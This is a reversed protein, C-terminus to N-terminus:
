RMLTVDGSKRIVRGDAINVVFTWTYVGLPVKEGDYTGDWGKLADDSTFILEGWNNYINFDVAEFPGGRILFVDNEGDGNPTFGTPLVPQLSLSIVQAATDICGYIDTVTLVVTYDDQQDYSHITHQNNDAEGDGFDWYWSALEGVSQDTFHVEELVLAPNPTMSFDAIPSNLVSVPIITTGTCGLASTAQMIVPYTGASPFYFTPNQQSSTNGNGFDYQWSVITGSSIFSNDTLAFPYNECVLGTTFSPVPVPLVEVPHTITDM